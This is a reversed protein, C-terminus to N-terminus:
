MLLTLAGLGALVLAVPEVLSAGFRPVKEVFVLAAVVLMWTISMAGLALLVLMLGVSSGLCHVGYRVGAAVGNTDPRVGSRCYALCRRKLPTLQYVAAAVVVAADVARIGRYAAFAFFGALCWVAVYSMAFGLPAFGDLGLAAPLASPLMMAAMMATWTVAFFSLSGLDAGMDMGTMRQVSVAWAAGVLLLLATTTTTSDTRHDRTV